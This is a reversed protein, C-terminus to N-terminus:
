ALEMTTEPTLKQYRGQISEIVRAAVEYTVLGVVGAVHWTGIAGLYGFDSEKYGMLHMYNFRLFSTIMSILMNGKFGTNLFRM